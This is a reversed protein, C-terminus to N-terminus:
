MPMTSSDICKQKERQPQSANGSSAASVANPAQVPSSIISDYRMMLASPLATGEYACIPSRHMPANPLHSTITEETTSVYTHTSHTNIMMQDFAASSSGLTGNPHTTM